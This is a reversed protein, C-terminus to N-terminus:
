SKASEVFVNWAYDIIVPYNNKWGYNDEHMDYLYENVFDRDNEDLFDQIYCKYRGVGKIRPMIYFHYGQFDIPTIEAFLYGYGHEKAFQYFKVEEECGGIGKTMELCYDFKIVYDSTIFAVRASGCEVIVHRSKRSNYLAIAQRYNYPEDACDKIYPWVDNLFRQARVKYDNKM